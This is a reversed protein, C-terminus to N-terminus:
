KAGAYGPNQTITNASREIQSQPIPRLLFHSDIDAASTHHRRVFPNHTYAREFLKGTRKLDMWRNAEGFLERGSEDLITDLTVSALKTAGARTRIDNVQQLAKQPDGNKLYAEALLLKTEATRFVIIDRTGM